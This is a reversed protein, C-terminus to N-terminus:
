HGAVGIAFRKFDDQTPAVIVNWSTEYFLRELVFSATIYHGTAAEVRPEPTARPRYGREKTVRNIVKLAGLLANDPDKLSLSICLAFFGDRQVSRVISGEEFNM